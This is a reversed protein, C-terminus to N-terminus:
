PMRGNTARGSEGRGEERYFATTMVGIRDAAQRAWKARSLAWSTQVKANNRIAKASTEAVRAKIALMHAKFRAVAVRQEAQQRFLALAQWAQQVQQQSQPPFEQLRILDQLSSTEDTWAQDVVQQLTAIQKEMATTQQWQEALRRQSNKQLQDAERAAADAEQRIKQAYAVVQAVRLAMRKRMSEAEQERVSAMELVQAGNERMWGAWLQQASEEARRLEQRAEDLIRGGEERVADVTARANDAEQSVQRNYLASRRLTELTSKEGMWVAHHASLAAVSRQKDGEARVLAAWERAKNQERVLRVAEKAAQVRAMAVEIEPSIGPLTSLPDAQVTLLPVFWLAITLM